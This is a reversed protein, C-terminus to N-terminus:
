RQSRPPLATRNGHVYIPELLTPDDVDGAQWRQWALHALVSPRRPALAASEMRDHVAGIAARHEPLMEGAVLLDPHDRLFDILEGVTSNVPAGLAGGNESVAWVVRGRGAPVISLVSVGQVRYPFASLELTPVGVLSIDKALVLGKAMSLGVRLGTFTGPGIAVAVAGLADATLHNTNLFWDIASLLSTTQSRGAPWSLEATSAGDTLGIAAQDTSTDLALLISSPSTTLM